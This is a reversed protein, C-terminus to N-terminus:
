ARSGPTLRLHGGRSDWSLRNLYYLTAQIGIVGAPALAWCHQPHSSTEDVSLGYPNDLLEADNGPWRGKDGLRLYKGDLVFRESMASVINSKSQSQLMIDISHSSTVVDGNIKLDKLVKQAYAVAEIIPTGSSIDISLQATNHRVKNANFLPSSQLRVMLPNATELPEIIPDSTDALPLIVACNYYGVLVRDFLPEPLAQRLRSGASPGRGTAIGLYAGETLVRELESAVEESLPDFRQRPDCLTGDYDAILGAFRATAFMKTMAQHHEKGVTRLREGKRRLATNLNLTAQRVKTRDPKLKYLARGFNPVGPKGPDIRSSRGGSDAVYLGVILGALGQLDLDGRFDIRFTTLEKPLLSLTKEGLAAQDDSILALVGTSEARKAMWVHRGHGFNRLDAIHLGGLSAEVFRSELDIAASRLPHSHLVSITERSTVADMRTSLTELNGVSTCTGILEDLTEPLEPDNNIARYGRALLTASAVLSAVALFGDKFCSDPFSLINTYRFSLSLDHMPSNESMVIAALPRVERLAARRYADQIDRNRGSATFCAIGSNEISTSAVELPTSARSIHRTCQEHLFAAFTATSFSGGSGVMIMPSSTWREIEQCLPRIEKERAAKYAAALDNLERRYQTIM